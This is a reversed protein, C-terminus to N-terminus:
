WILASKRMKLKTILHFRLILYIPLLLGDFVICFQDSLITMTMFSWTIVLTKHTLAFMDTAVISTAQVSERTVLTTTRRRITMKIKTYKSSQSSSSKQRKSDGGWFQFIPFKESRENFGMMLKGGFSTILAMFSILQTWQSKNGLYVLIKKIQHSWVISKHKSPIQNHWWWPPHLVPLFTSAFWPSSSSSKIEQRLM